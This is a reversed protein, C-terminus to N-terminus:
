FLKIYQERLIQVAELREEPTKSQWYEWDQQEQEERTLIKIVKEM